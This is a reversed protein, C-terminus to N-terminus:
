LMPHVPVDRESEPNKLRKVHDSNTNDPADTIRIVWIGSIEVVDSTLLQALEGLRGGTWLALLPLWYRHDRIKYSGPKRWGTSSVCGAFHPADFISQLQELAVEISRRRM